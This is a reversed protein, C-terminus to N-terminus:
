LIGNGFSSRVAASTEIWGDSLRQLHRCFAQVPDNLMAFLVAFCHHVPAVLVDDFLGIPSILAAQM